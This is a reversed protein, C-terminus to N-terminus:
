QELLKKLGDLVMAWNKEMGKLVKEDPINDQTITLETNSGASKLEYIVNAYNEPKDETGSMPSWFTTHLIKDPIIEMITGKDEYAKGEWEGKYTITSGKEWDTITDTGFMYEKIQAPDTLAHWVKSIPAQISIATKMILKHEM